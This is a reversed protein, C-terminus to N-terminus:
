YCDSNVSFLGPWCVFFMVISKLNNGAFFIPIPFFNLSKDFKTFFVSTLSNKCGGVGAVMQSKLAAGFLMSPLGVGPKM